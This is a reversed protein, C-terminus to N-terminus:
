SAIFSRLIELAVEPQDSLVSHGADSIREFRVLHAPLMAAMDVAAEMPCAPDDEGSLILTSCRISGLRPTLDITRLESQLLRMTLDGNAVMRMQKNPDEPKRTYLPLCHKAFAAGTKLDPGDFFNKAARHARAGGLRRLTELSEARHPRAEAAYLILKAPHDPYRSAYEIAVYGGYSHGLVIPKDIELVSCLARVDYAWREVTWRESSTPDSRGTGRMDPFILQVVDALPALEYKLYSHDGGPGGHLAILTPREIMQPGDPVFKAGVVDFFLRGGDTEIRM